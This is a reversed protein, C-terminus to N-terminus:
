PGPLYYIPTTIATDVQIFDLRTQELALLYKRCLVDGQSIARTLFSIHSVLSPSTGKRWNSSIRFMWKWDKHSSDEVRARAPLPKIERDNLRGSPGRSGRLRTKGYVLLYQRRWLENDVALRAWNRNILQVACLDLWSLYSFITLILEDYLSDVQSFLSQPPKTHTTHLRKPPPLDQTPLSRKSM